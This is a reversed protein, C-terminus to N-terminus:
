CAFECRIIQYAFEDYGTGGGDSIGSNVVVGAFGDDVFRIRADVVGFSPSKEPAEAVEAGGNEFLGEVEDLLLVVQNDLADDQLLLVAVSSLVDLACTSYVLGALVGCGM